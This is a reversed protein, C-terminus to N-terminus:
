GELVFPVVGQDGVRVLAGGLPQPGEFAPAAVALDGGAGQLDHSAGGVADEFLGVLMVEGHETPRRPDHQTAGHDALGNRPRRNGPSAPPNASGM